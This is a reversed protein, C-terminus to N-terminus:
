NPCNGGNSASNGCACGNCAPGGVTRLAGSSSGVAFASLPRDPKEHGCKPCPVQDAKAHSSVIEEFHHQCSPCHYEYLPM